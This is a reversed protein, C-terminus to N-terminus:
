REDWGPEGPWVTIREILEDEDLGVESVTANQVSMGADHIANKSGSVLHHWDPLPKGESLLRYACTQPM